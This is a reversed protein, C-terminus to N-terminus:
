NITSLTKKTQLIVLKTNDSSYDKATSNYVKQECDVHNFVVFYRTGSEFM